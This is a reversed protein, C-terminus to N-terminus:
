CAWCEWSRMRRSPTSLVPVTLRRTCGVHAVDPEAPDVDAGAHTNERLLECDGGDVGGGTLDQGLEHDVEPPVM